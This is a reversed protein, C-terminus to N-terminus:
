GILVWASDLLGHFQDNGPGTGKGGIRLPEANAIVLGPPIPVAARWVQDVVISLDTDSRQCEVAHWGGDAITLPAVVKYIRNPTGGAIVCSPEGAYGDVQLVVRPCLAAPTTAPCRPPFVVATRGLAAGIAVTGGAQTSVTLPAGTLSADRPGDPAEVPYWATLVEAASAHAQATPALAAMAAACLLASVASRPRSFVVHIVCIV